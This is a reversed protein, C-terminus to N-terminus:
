GNQSRSFDRMINKVEEAESLVEEMSIEPLNKILRDLSNEEEEIPKGFLASFMNEKGEGEQVAKRSDAKPSVSPPDPKRAEVPAAPPAPAPPAEAPTKASPHGPTLLSDPVEEPIVVKPAKSAAAAVPEKVEEEKLASAPVVVKVPFDPQPNEITEVVCEADVTKGRAKQPKKNKDPRLLEARTAEAPQNENNEKKRKFLFM